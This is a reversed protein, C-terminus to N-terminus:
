KNKRRTVPTAMLRLAKLALPHNIRGMGVVKAAIVDVYELPESFVLPLIQIAWRCTKTNYVYSLCWGLAAAEKDEELSLLDFM